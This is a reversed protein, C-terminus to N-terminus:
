FRVAVASQLILAEKRDANPADGSDLHYMMVEFKMAVEIESYWSAKQQEPRAVYAFRGGFLQNRMPSLERDGTWYRGTTGMLLYGRGDRYFSAGRQIHFRGRAGILFSPTFYKHLNLEATAADVNWSDRYVRVMGMASARLGPFFYATRGWLAYRQRLLPLSEQPTNHNRGILVSRYPNAQFGDLIQATGGVQVVLRPTATWTLSPEVTDIHLRHAVVDTQDSQFCHASSTLPKVFLPQGAAAQNNNDCVSDFNHTYGLALTFNHELLDTRTTASVTHSRYDSEWGYGYGASLGASPRNYALGGKVEHRTDSFKTAGSVADVGTRPGFTQPTAGTVIDVAYGATIDVSPGLAASVDLQPHIVTIGDNSGSPERFITIRSSGESNALAFAPVLLMALTAAAAAGFVTAARKPATLQM